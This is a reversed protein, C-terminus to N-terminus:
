KSTYMSKTIGEGQNIEAFLASREDKLPADENLNLLNMDFNPPPPPPPCSGIPPPPPVGAGTGKGSWVLGTTHYQRVYKQLENLVQMWARAWEVNVADKEKWEKLVRNIYFQGADSM